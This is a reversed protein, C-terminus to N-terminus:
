LRSKDWAHFGHIHFRMNDCAHVGPAREFVHVASRLAREAAVRLSHGEPLRTGGLGESDTRTERPSM